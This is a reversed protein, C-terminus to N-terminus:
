QKTLNLVCDINITEDISDGNLDQTVAEIIQVQLKASSLNLIDFTRMGTYSGSDLTLKKNDASLSWTGSDAIGGMNATFTNDQNLQIHGSFSQQMTQNIGQIYTQEATGSLHMVSTLYQTMTMDGVKASFTSPGVVWNGILNDSSFTEKKSCSSLFLGTTLVLLLKVPILYNTKM